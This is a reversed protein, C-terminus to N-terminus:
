YVREHTFIAGALRRKHFNQAADIRMRLIASPDQDFPCLLFKGANAFRFPSTDRYNKLLQGQYFFHADAFVNEQSALWSLKSDNTPFLEVPSRPCQKIIQMQLEIRM